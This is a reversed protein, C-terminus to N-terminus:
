IEFSFGYIETARKLTIQYRGTEMDSLYINFTMRDPITYFGTWIRAPIVGAYHTGMDSSELINGVGDRLEIDTGRKTTIRLIKSDRYLSIYKEPHDERTIYVSTAEALSEKEKLPITGWQQELYHFAETWNDSAHYRFCVCLYDGYEPSEIPSCDFSPSNNTPYSVEPSVIRIIKGDKNCHAIALRLNKFISEKYPRGNAPDGMINVSAMVTFPHEFIDTSSISIYSVDVSPEYPAGTDPQIGTWAEMHLFYSPSRTDDEFGFPALSYYGNSRGGWGWNMRVYDNGDVGDAVFAHGVGTYYNFGGLLVPRGAKIEEIILKTWDENTLMMSSVQRAGNDYGFYEPLIYAMSISAGTGTEDELYVAHEMAGVDRMLTAVALGQEKTFTDGYTLPMNDWDYAYDINWDGFKFWTRGDNPMLSVPSCKGDTYYPEIYVNPATAPCKWYRMIIATATPMCGTYGPKGNVEPCLANFPHVQNWRATELEVVPSAPIYAKTQVLATEWAVKIGDAAGTGKRRAISVIEGIAELWGKLAPPLDNPASVHETYSYGLIPVASTENSVIVFGGAPDEIIFFPVEEPAKTGPIDNLVRMQGDSTKSGGARLFRGAIEVAMDKGIPGAPCPSFPFAVLIAMIILRTKM